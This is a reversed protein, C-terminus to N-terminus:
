GRAASGALLRSLRRPARDARHRALRLRLRQSMEAVLEEQAYLKSGFRGLSRPRAPLSPRGLSRARASGDPALQDARFLRRAAAGPHLRQGPQLLRPRRRHPFRRRHRAILAEAQPLILGQRCPRRRPSWIRRAPGRMPRHQVGHVAQPVPHRRSTATASPAGANTRRAHLSRCLRRDHRTRGQACPRRPELAQRFTLWSQGAFGHEIVAGWLILVNIGPIAAGHRPTRRCPSRRRRRRREGPSSGPCAAPRWSPSSRTPSKTMSARGTRAPVPALPTDPCRPDGRRAGRAERAVRLGDRCVRGASESKALRM